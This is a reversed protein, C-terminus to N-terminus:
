LSVAESLNFKGTQDDVREGKRTETEKERNGMKDACFGIIRLM